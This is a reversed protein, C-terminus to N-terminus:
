IQKQVIIGVSTAAYGMLALTLHPEDRYPAVDLYTDLQGAGPDLDLPAVIHGKAGLRRALEELDRRRFLVTSGESVTENNSSVNYETTHVAFGGPKLCDISNEIFQLGQEISGLHELACASWCFDYGALDKPVKNMDCFRFDVNADFVADPCLDPRRLAEKGGAHQATEVWGTGAAAEPALDTGTVKCGKGAFYATLPEEGVGFGLGRMGPIIMGREYLAQCIFVFEWLKRHYRLGQGLQAAWYPFYPTEFSDQRCLTSHPFIMMDRPDAGPKLRGAWDATPPLSLQGLLLRTERQYEIQRSALLSLNYLALDLKQTLVQVDSSPKM